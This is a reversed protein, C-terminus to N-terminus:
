TSINVQCERGGGLDEFRATGEVVLEARQAGPRTLEVPRGANRAVALPPDNHGILVIVAHLYPRRARRGLKHRSPDLRTSREPLHESELALEQQLKPFLAGLVPLEVIGPVHGDVRLTLNQDRVGPVVANLEKSGVAGKEVLVAELAGQPFVKVRGPAHGKIVFVVQHDGVEVVVPEQDDPGVALRSAEQAGLAGPVSLEQTRLADGHVLLVADDHGVRAVM